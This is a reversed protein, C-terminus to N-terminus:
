ADFHDPSILREELVRLLYGLLMLNPARDREMAGLHLNEPYPAYSRFFELTELPVNKEIVEELEESDLERFIESFESALESRTLTADGRM